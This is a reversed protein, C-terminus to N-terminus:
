KKRRKKFEEVEFEETFKKKKEMIEKKFNEKNKMIWENRQKKLKEFNERYGKTSKLFEEVLTRKYELINFSLDVVAPITTDPFFTAQKNEQITIKKKKMEEFEYEDELSLFKEEDISELYTEVEGEFVAINTSKDDKVSVYFITGRVSVVTTPTFIHLAELQYEDKFVFSDVILSGEHVKLLIKTKTKYKDPTVIFKKIDLLCNEEIRLAVGNEFLLEVFSLSFTKIKDEKYIPMYKEIKFEKKQRVVIAKGKFKSVLAVPNEHCYIYQILLLFILCLNKM